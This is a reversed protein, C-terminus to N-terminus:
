VTIDNKIKEYLAEGIGTVEILEETKKFNGNKERHEIIAKAKSEGIGSLKQLEEVSATNINIKESVKDNESSDEIDNDEQKLCADNKVDPCNCEKEIIKIIPEDEFAKKVEEKTYIRIVMENTVKKALNILTTDANANFGGALGVVDIVKKDEEIEYVGPKKVAGKIDVFVKQIITDVQEKEEDDKKLPDGEDKQQEELEFEDLVIENTKKTSLSYKILVGFMVIISISIITIWKLHKKIKKM